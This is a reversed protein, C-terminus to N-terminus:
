RSVIVSPRQIKREQERAAAQREPTRVTVVSIALDEDVQFDVLRDLFVATVEDTDDVDVVARVYVSDWDFGAGVTFTTTPYRALILQQLEDVAAQMRPDTIEFNSNDVFMM